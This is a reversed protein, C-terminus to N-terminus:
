FDIFMVADRELTAGIGDVGVSGIGLKFFPLDLHRCNYVRMRSMSFLPLWSVAFSSAVM